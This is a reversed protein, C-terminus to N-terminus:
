FYGLGALIDEVEIILSDGEVTRILPSPNCGGEVVNIQDAPFRRGCNNCIMHDGDQTYGKKASFCVDCANFAARVIGDQSKLVFFEASHGEHMYTYHHAQYDDFTSLPLRVAGDVAEVLPYPDHGVTAAKALLSKNGTAYSDLNASSASAVSDATPTSERTFAFIAGAILALVILTGGLLVLPSAGGSGKKQEEFRARKAARSPAQENTKKRSM